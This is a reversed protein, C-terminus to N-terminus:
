AVAAVGARVRDDLAGTLPHDALLRDLDHAPGSM